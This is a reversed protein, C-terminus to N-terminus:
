PSEGKLLADLEIYEEYTLEFGAKPTNYHNRWCGHENLFQSIVKREDARAQEITSIREDEKILKARATMAVMHVIKEVEEPSKWGEHEKIVEDRGVGKMVLGFREIEPKPMWGDAVLAAKTKASQARAVADALELGYMDAEEVMAVTLIEEETLLDDVNPRRSRM